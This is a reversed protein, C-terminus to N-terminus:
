DIIYGQEDLLIWNNEKPYGHWFDAPAFKIGKNLLAPKYSFSSKSTILADAYVMHLFSEQANMDLCFHLNDFKNFEPYDEPRGQSFFYIHINEKNRVYRLASSLANLFYDNSQFRMTLNPNNEGSKQVIDGRRVHIAVNFANPDYILKETKRMPAAYFKKQAALAVKYVDKYFQDQECFFVVKQNSYSDIIKHIRGLDEKTNEFQPIRVKKYGKKLLEYACDENYGFNLFEEWDSCSNPIYSNSFPQHAFQLGFVGAYYYGAMWNAIQHGIGAGPNPRATM